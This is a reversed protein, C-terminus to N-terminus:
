SRACRGRTSMRRRRTRLSPSAWACPARKAMERGSSVATMGEPIEFLSADLNTIEFETVEMQMVVVQKGGEGPVTTTYAIPFGLLSAEGVLTAKIEDRCAAASSSPAVPPQAALTKPADIYWSDTEMRQKVQDCAGAQPQRDIVTMVRRAQRGFVEKREGVDAISTEVNVVGTVKQADAAPAADPTILYAKAARSIQVMQKMDHQRLLVMDSIEYRERPGRLYTIGETVQDGNTYRSKFRIDSPPPPPEPAPKVAPAAPKPPAPKTTAPKRTSPAPKQGSPKQSAQAFALSTVCLVAALQLAAVKRM